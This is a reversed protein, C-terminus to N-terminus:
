SCTTGGWITNGISIKRSPVYLYTCTGIFYDYLLSWDNTDLIYHRKANRPCHLSKIKAMNVQRNKTLGPLPCAGKSDKHWYIWACKKSSFQNIKLSIKNFTAVPTLALKRFRQHGLKSSPCAHPNVLCFSDLHIILFLQRFFGDWIRYTSNLRWDTLCFYRKQFNPPRLSRMTMGLHAKKEIKQHCKCKQFILILRLVVYMALVFSFWQWSTM